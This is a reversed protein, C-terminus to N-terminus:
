ARPALASAPALAAMPQQERVSAAASSDDPFNLKRGTIKRAVADYARAAAEGTPHCGLHKRKGDMQVQPHYPNRIRKTKSVGFYKVAGAPGYGRQIAAIKARIQSESPVASTESSQQSSSQGASSTTPFSLKRGSVIRAVNDYARAAERATPACCIHYSKSQFRIDARFPKTPRDRADYSVGVYQACEAKGDRAARDSPSMHRAAQRMAGAARREGGRLPGDEDGLPM